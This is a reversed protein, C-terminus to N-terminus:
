PLPIDKIQRRSTIALKHFINRLHAEIGPDAIPSTRNNIAAVRATDIDLVTVEHDRALMVTNALGVYGGGAIAIRKM